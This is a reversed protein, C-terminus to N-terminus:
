DGVARNPHRNQADMSLVAHREVVGSLVLTGTRQDSAAQPGGQHPDRGRDQGLHVAHGRANWNAIFTAIAGILERVSRFSGRRIAQRSLVSFWTEVQNM